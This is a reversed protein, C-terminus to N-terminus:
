HKHMGSNCEMKRQLGDALSLVKIIQIDLAAMLNCYILRALGADTLILDAM